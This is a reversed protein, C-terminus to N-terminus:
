GLLVEPEVARAPWSPGYDLHKLPNAVLTAFAAAIRHRPEVGITPTSGLFFLPSSKETKTQWSTPEYLGSEKDATYQKMRKRLPGLLEADLRDKFGVTACEYKQGHHALANNISHRPGEDLLPEFSRNNTFV